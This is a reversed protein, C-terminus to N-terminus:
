YYGTANPQDPDFAPHDPPLTRPMNPKHGNTEYNGNGNRTATIRDHLQERERQRRKWNLHWTSVADTWSKMKHRDKGTGIMWERQRHHAIFAESEIEVDAVPMGKRTMEVAVVALAPAEFIAGPNIAKTKGSQKPNSITDTIVHGGFLDTAIAPTEDVTNLINISSEISSEPRILRAPEKSHSNGQIDGKIVKSTVREKGQIDGKVSELLTDYSDGNKGQIDGKIKRNMPISYVSTNGRGTGRKVVLEGSAELKAVHRIVQRVSCNCKEAITEMRPYADTGDHNAYSAIVTLCLRAAGKHASNNIVFETVVVSM